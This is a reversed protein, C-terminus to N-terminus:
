VNCPVLNVTLANVASPMKVLKRRAKFEFDWLIIEGSRLGCAIAKSEPLFAASLM